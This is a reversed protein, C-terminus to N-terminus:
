PRIGFSTLCGCAEEESSESSSTSLMGAGDEGLGDRPEACPSVAETSDEEDESEVCDEVVADDDPEEEGAEERLSDRPAERLSLEFGGRLFSCGALSFLLPLLPLEPWSSSQDQAM